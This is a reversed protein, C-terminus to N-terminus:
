IWRGAGTELTHPKDAHHSAGSLQKLNDIELKPYKVLQTGTGAGSWGAYALKTEAPVIRGSPM